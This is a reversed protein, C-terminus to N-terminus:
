IEPGVALAFTCRSAWVRTLCSMEEAQELTRDEAILTIQFNYSSGSEHSENAQQPCLLKNAQQPSTSRGRKM